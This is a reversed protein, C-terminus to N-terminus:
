VVRELQEELKKQIGLCSESLLLPQGLLALM